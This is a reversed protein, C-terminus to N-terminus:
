LSSASLVSPIAYTKSVEFDIRSNEHTDIHACVHTHMHLVITINPTKQLWEGRIEQFLSEWQVQLKSLIRSKVFNYWVEATKLLINM